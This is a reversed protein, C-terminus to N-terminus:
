KTFTRELIRGNHPDIVCDYSRASYATLPDSSAIKYYRDGPDTTPLEATWLVQGSRDLAALNHFRGNGEDASDPDYLIVVSDGREIATDIPYALEHRVGDIFLEREIYRISV